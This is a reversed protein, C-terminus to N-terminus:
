NNIISLLSGVKRVIFAWNTYINGDLSMLILKLRRFPFIDLSFDNLIMRVVTFHIHFILVFISQFAFCIIIKHRSHTSSSTSSPTASFFPFLIVKFELNWSFQFPANWACNLSFAKWLEETSRVTKIRRMKGWYKFNEATKANMKIRRRWRKMETTVYKYCWEYNTKRWNKERKVRNSQM